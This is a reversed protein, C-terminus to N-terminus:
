IKKWWSRATSEKVGAKLAAARVSLLQQLRYHFIIERPTTGYERYQMSHGAKIEEATDTKETIRENQEEIPAVNSNKELYLDLNVLQKLAHPDAEEGIIHMAEIENKDYITGHGDENLFVVSSM